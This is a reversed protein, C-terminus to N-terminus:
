KLLVMKKTDIFSGAQLRYFYVGSPLEAGNFDVEYYGASLEENVLTTVLQGLVNYIKLDVIVASSLAYNIKTVPNFPNPYNQSISYIMPIFKQDDIGTVLKCIIPGSVPISSLDAAIFSINYYGSTDISPSTISFIISDEQGAYFNGVFVSDQSTTFGSSLTLKLYLESVDMQGFNKFKIKLPFATNYGIEIPAELLTSAVFPPHAISQTILNLEIIKDAMDNNSNITETGISTLTDLYTTNTSDVYYQLLRTYLSIRNTLSSGILNCTNFYLSDFGFVTSDAKHAVSLFPFISLETSYNLSSDLNILESINQIALDREGNQINQLIVLLEDNYEMLAISPNNVIDSNSGYKSDIAYNNYYIPNQVFSPVYSKNVTINLDKPTKALQIGTVGISAAVTGVSLVQLVNGIGVIIPTLATGIGSLGLVTGAINFINSATELVDSTNRLLEGTAKANQTSSQHANNREDTINFADSFTGSYNFNSSLNEVILINEQTIPIYVNDLFLKSGMPFVIAKITEEFLASPGQAVGDLTSFLINFNSHLRPGIPPEIESCAYLVATKGIKLGLRVIKWMLKRILPSETLEEIKKAMKITSFVSKGLGYFSKLSEITMESADDYYIKIASEALFLRALSNKINEYESNINSFETLLIKVQEEDYGNIEIFPQWWGFLLDIRIQLNELSDVLKRKQGVLGFLIELNTLNQGTSVQYRSKVTYFEDSDPVQGTKKLELSYDGPPIDDLIFYGTIDSTTIAVPNIGNYLTVETELPTYDISGNQLNVIVDRITGSIQNGGAWGNEHYLDLIETETLARSYIRIDDLKGHMYEADAQSELGITLPNNDPVIPVSLDSSGLLIGDLYIKSVNESYTTAIFYWQGRNLSIEYGWGQNGGNQVYYVAPQATVEEYGLGFQGHGSTNTKMVIGAVPVGLFEELNIWGALTIEDTPSQLTASNAVEIYGDIGNFQVATNVSDFRNTSFAVGGIPNGTNGNGSSDEFNGNFPYYAVLGLDPNYILALDDILFTGSATPIDLSGDDTEYTVSIEFGKINELQLIQDGDGLQWKFGNIGSDDKKLPMLINIWSGTIDNLNLNTFHVWLDHQGVDNYESLKFEFRMNGPYSFTTPTIIKYWLSLVNGGSLDIYPLIGPQNVNYTTRVVYGSWNPDIDEVLYDIKMSGSGEYRDTSNSLNLYSNIGNTFFTENYTFPDPFFSGVADDFNEGTWHIINPEYFFRQVIPFSDEGFCIVYANLNDDSFAIGRPREKPNSPTNFVWNISDVVSNSNLDFEYWTNPIFTSGPAPLDFYSGGSLWLNGTLKNKTISECSIGDLVTGVEEFPDSYNVRNYVVVTKRNEFIPFYLTNGDNSCEISRSYDEVLTSLEVVNGLFAFDYDYEQIFLGQNFVPAVFIHGNEAIAPTTPSTGINLDVKNMGTGNQHAIRWMQQGENVYIIDGNIDTRLGRARYILNEPTGNVSLNWIPSFPAPTGDPNFIHILNVDTGAPDYYELNYKTIWIKGESDITIGQGGSGGYFNDDPFNGSYVWNQPYSKNNTLLVSLICFIIFKYM